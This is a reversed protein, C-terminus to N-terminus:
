ASANAKRRDRVIISGFFAAMDPLDKANRYPPWYTDFADEIMKADHESIYYGLHYEIYDRKRRAQWKRTGRKDPRFRAM